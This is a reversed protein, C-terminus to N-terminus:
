ADEWATASFTRTEIVPGYVLPPVQRATQAWAEGKTIGGCGCWYDRTGPCCAYANPDEGTAEAVRGQLILAKREAQARSRFRKSRKTFGERQWVVRFETRSVVSTAEQLDTM